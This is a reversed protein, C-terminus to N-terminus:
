VVRLMDPPTFKAIVGGYKEKLLSWIVPGYEKWYGVVTSARLTPRTEMFFAALAYINDRDRKPLADIVPASLQLDRVFQAQALKHERLKHALDDEGRMGARDRDMNRILRLRREVEQAEQAAERAEQERRLREHRQQELVLAHARADDAERRASLMDEHALADLEALARAHERARAAKAERTALRKAGGVIWDVHASSGFTAM